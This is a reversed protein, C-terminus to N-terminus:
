RSGSPDDVVGPLTAMLADYEDLKGQWREVVADAKNFLQQFLGSKNEYFIGFGTQPLGYRALDRCVEVIAAIYNDIKPLLPSPDPHEPDAYVTDLDTKLQNQLPVLKTTSVNGLQGPLFDVRTRDLSMTGSNQSTVDTPLAADTPRLTRSRLLLARLSRVLPAIQFFSLDGPKSEIYSVNQLLDPRVKLAADRLVVDRVRDELESRAQFITRRWSTYCTM